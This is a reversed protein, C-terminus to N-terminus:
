QSLADMMEQPPPPVYAAEDLLCGPPGIWNQSRRFEGPTLHEGRVGELLIAHMERILRLSLPLTDLRKVGYEMARVYNAVERVDSRKPVKGPAAEFYVLDSLSAQTGEIRSSLVSEKRMFPGVLLRPNPLTEGIGALAGLSRDADSLLKLVQGDIRVEPPLPNPVFAWYGSSTKLLRGSPSSRFMDINM